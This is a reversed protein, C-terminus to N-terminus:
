AQKGSENNSSVTKEDKGYIFETSIRREQNEYDVTMRIQRVKDWKGKAFLYPNFLYIARGKKILIEQQHLEQIAKNVTELSISLNKSVERKIDAVLIVQGNYNMQGLLAFLVAGTSKPLNNLKILDKIYIKVYEPERELYMEKVDTTSVVEGTQLDVVETTKQRTIKAM